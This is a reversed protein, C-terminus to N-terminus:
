KNSVAVPQLAPNMQQSASHRLFDSVGAFGRSKAMEEFLIKEHESLRVNVQCNRAARSEGAADFTPTPPEVGAELWASLMTASTRVLKDYCVQLDLNRAVVNPLQWSRLLFGEQPIPHGSFSYTKSIALAHDFYM